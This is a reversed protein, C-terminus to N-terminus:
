LYRQQLLTLAFYYGDPGMWYNVLNEVSQSTNTAGALGDVTFRDQNNEHPAGVRFRAQGDALVQKGQFQALWQENTMIKGGLAPTEGQEYFRIRHISLTKLDLSLYGKLMSLYGQGELPVVLQKGMNQPTEQRATEKEVSSNKEVSGNEGLDYGDVIYAMVWQDRSALHALNQKADLTQRTLTHHIVRDRYRAITDPEDTLTHNEMNLLVPHFYTKILNATSDHVTGLGAVALLTRKEDRQIIKHHQVKSSSTVSAQQGTGAHNEDDFCGGLLMVGPLMILSLLSQYKM